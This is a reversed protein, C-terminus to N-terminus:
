GEEKFQMQYLRKYLGGRKILEEHNSVEIVEGKDLLVIKTAGRITSLRHAIVFVTRGKMLRDIAEQVLRESETDLQSTAEDLILIPPNKLVARAIALRQKEGGSLRFGRDGIITEYGKPMNMIFQHANAIRASREIEDDKAEPKGYAINTRVTDNFLITEQTVIGIQERLSKFSVERIDQGDIKVCGSTPDYFRPILNVLTTKGVGSPGVFAVVEGVGVELNIDKLVNQDEYRFWVKEFIVKDRIMPLISAGPKEAVSPKIDLVEFIRRAAALAQQNIIHVRSLKKFPRILSLLAGIFLGFVGFSLRGAIVERGGLVFVVIGGLTGIFETVPGLLLSRINIKMMIKYFNQNQREFKGVEYDEMSFAKVIRVGSITEFLTSNIDAIREQSRSSLKRLLKGMRLIPMAILPFLILSITALRWHIYFSITAFLILQFSCYILDTVGETVSNQIISVDNTIRSVLEGTRKQSYYDLSLNQFKRYLRNRMDRIVRLSVDNMLYGQWFGFLGKLLYLILVLIAMLNLLRMAPISNITQIIRQLFEPLKVTTITIEKNSLIKDALPVIMGLSVGDFLTSFLM